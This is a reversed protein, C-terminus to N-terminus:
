DSSACRAPGPEGDAGGACAICRALKDRDANGLDAPCTARMDNVTSSM